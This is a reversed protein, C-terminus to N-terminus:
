KIRPIIVDLEKGTFDKERVVPISLFYYKMPKDRWGEETPDPIYCCTGEYLEKRNHCKSCQPRNGFIPAIVWNHAWIKEEM